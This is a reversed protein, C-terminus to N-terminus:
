AGIRLADVQRQPLPSDFVLGAMDPKTWMVTCRAPLALIRLTCREGVSLAVGAAIRAGGANVDLM